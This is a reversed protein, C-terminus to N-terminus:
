KEAEVNGLSRENSWFLHLFAFLTKLQSAAGQRSRSFFVRDDKTPRDSYALSYFEAKVLRMM